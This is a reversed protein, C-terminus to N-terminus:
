RRRQRLALGIMGTALLAATGPEPIVTLSLRGLTYPSALPAEGFAIFSGVLGGGLDTPGFDEFAPHVPLDGCFGTAINGLAPPGPCTVASGPVYAGIQAGSITAAVFPFFVGGISDGIADIGLRFYTEVQNSGSPLFLSVGAASVQNVDPFVLIDLTLTDGAFAEITSGGTIGLGTTDSWILQVTPAALASPAAVLAVTLLLCLLGARM